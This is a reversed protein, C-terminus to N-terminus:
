HRAYVKTQKNKTQVVPLMRITRVFSWILQRTPPVKLADIYAYIRKLTADRHQEEVNVLVVAADAGIKEITSRKLVRCATEFDAYYGTPCLREQRIMEAWSNYPGTRWVADMSKMEVLLFMRRLKADNGEQVLARFDALFSSYTPTKKPM